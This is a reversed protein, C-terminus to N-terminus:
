QCKVVEVNLKKSASGIGGIDFVYQGELSPTFTYTTGVLVYKQNGNITGDPYQIDRVVFRKPADLTITNGLALKDPLGHTLAVGGGIRRQTTAHDECTTVLPVAPTTPAATVVAQQPTGVLSVDGLREFTARIKGKSRDAITTFAALSLDMDRGTVYPGRDNIRVIVSKGNEINTVKVMTNAPYSRHAATLDNMNFKEGFATGQGQFKESYLSVEHDETKLDTDLSNMLTTLQDSTVPQSATKDTYNAIPYRQLLDPLSDPKVSAPDDTVNRTRIMWILATELTLPEDPRFIQQDGIIGRSKAYDIELSGRADEPVDSFTSKAPQAPRKISQWIQLFGDRRTIGDAAFSIGPVVMLLVIIAFRKM